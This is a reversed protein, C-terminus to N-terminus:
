WDITAEGFTRPTCFLYLVMQSKLKLESLYTGAARGAEPGTASSRRARPYVEV